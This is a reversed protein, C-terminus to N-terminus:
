LEGLAERILRVAEEAEWTILRLDRRYRVTDTEAAYKRAHDYFFQMGELQAGIADLLDTARPDPGREQMDGQDGM